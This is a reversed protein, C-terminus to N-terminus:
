KDAGTWAKPSVSLRQPPKSTERATSGTKRFLADPCTKEQTAADPKRLGNRINEGDGLMLSSNSDSNSELNLGPIATEPWLTLQGRCERLGSLAVGSTGIDRVGSTGLADVADDV